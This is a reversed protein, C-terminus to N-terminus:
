CRLLLTEVEVMGGGGIEREVGGDGEEEEGVALALRELHEKDGGVGAAGGQTPPRPHWLEQPHRLHAHLVEGLQHPAAAQRSDPGPWPPVGPRPQSHHEAGHDAPPHRRGGAPPPHRGPQAELGTDQLGRRLYPFM